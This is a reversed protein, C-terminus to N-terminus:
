YNMELLMYGKEYSTSADSHFEVHFSRGFKCCVDLRTKTAISITIPWRLLFLIQLFLTQLRWM